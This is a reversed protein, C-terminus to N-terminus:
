NTSDVLAKLVQELKDIVGLIRVQVAQYKQVIKPGYLTKETSLLDRDCIINSLALMALGELSLDIVSVFCIAGNEAHLSLARTESTLAASFPIAM